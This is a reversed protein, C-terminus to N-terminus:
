SDALDPCASGDGCGDDQFNVLLVVDWDPVDLSQQSLPLFDLREITYKM